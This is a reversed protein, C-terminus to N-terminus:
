YQAFKLRLITRQKKNLNRPHESTQLFRKLDTYWSDVTTPIFLVEQTCLSMENEWGEEHLNTPDLAEAALKCLGQGKVIKAHKFKFDYEYIAAKWNGRREGLEKQIFLFRVVSHPVIM